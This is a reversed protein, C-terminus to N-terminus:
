RSCFNLLFQGSLIWWPQKHVTLYLKRLVEYCGFYVFHSFFQFDATDRHHEPLSHNKGRCTHVNKQVHIICLKVSFQNTYVKGADSHRMWANLFKSWDIVSGVLPPLPAHMGSTCMYFELTLGLWKSWPHVISTESKKKFKKYFVLVVKIFILFFRLGFYEDAAIEYSNSFFPRFICLALIFFKSKWNLKKRAKFCEM